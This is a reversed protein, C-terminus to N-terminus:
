PGIVTGSLDVSFTFARRKALGIRFRVTVSENPFLLGDPGADIGQRSGVGGDGEAATILINGNTLTSVIAKIPIQLVDTSTNTLLAFIVFHGAPAGPWPTPDYLTEQVVFSTRDNVIVESFLNAGLNVIGTLQVHLGSPTGGEEFIVFDLTNLGARFGSTISLPWLYTLEWTGPNSNGTHVGNILIDVGANDSAWSGTIYAAQTTSDFTEPLSFTTRYVYYGLAYSTLNEPNPAIWKSIPTNSVWLGSAFPFEDPSPLTFTNGPAPFRADDSSILTYHPDVGGDPVLTGDDQVGTNFLTISVTSQANLSQSALLMTFAIACRFLSVTPYTKM